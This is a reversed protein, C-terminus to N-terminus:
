GGRSQRGAPDQTDLQRIQAPDCQGSEKKEAPACENSTCELARARSLPNELTQEPAEGEPVTATCKCWLLWGNSSWISKLRGRGGSYYKRRRIYWLAM